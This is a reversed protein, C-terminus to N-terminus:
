NNRVHISGVIKEDDIQLIYWYTGSSVARGMYTGDWLIDSSSVKRSVFLKGNRDFIQIYIQEYQQNVGRIQWTDNIGDNNPSIFNPIHYYTFKHINGYCGM